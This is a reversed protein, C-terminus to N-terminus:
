RDVEDSLLDRLHVLARSARKRAAAEEIGCVDAVERFSLGAQYRLIVVERESPKLSALAQRVDRAARTREVQDFPSDPGSADHVLELREVRHARAELRRACIRRAITALWAFVHGEGRFQAMSRHAVLLTEQMAEEAEAQNGLMAMCLRGLPASYSRACLSVAEKFAGAAIREGIPDNV